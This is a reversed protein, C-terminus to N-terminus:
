RRGRAAAGRGKTEVRAEDGLGDPLEFEAQIRGTYSAGEELAVETGNMDGTVRAGARIVIPGDAEVDGALTGSLTVSQAAVSGRVNGSEGIELAGRVRVDGEIEGDVRLDGDGLLRGRVRVTAGLVNVDETSRPAARGGSRTAAFNRSM